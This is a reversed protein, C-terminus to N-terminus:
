SSNRKMVDAIEIEKGTLASEYIATAIALSPLAEEGNVTPERRTKVADVIDRFQILHRDEPMLRPDSTDAFTFGRGPDIQETGSRLNWFFTQDWEGNIIASGETGHVEIRSKFAPYIATSSQIVGLAGNEFTLTSAVLDEVEIKHRATRKKAFVSHVPGALWQLLDIVHISQTMLCGGGELQQTGRWYDRAYYEPTRYEKDIADAELIKGFSGAVLAQKLKQAASGFRMQFIVGLCVRNRKCADIIERGRVLTIELPKEVVVHKGAEAAAVAFDRHLGNPTVVNVVDVEQDALMDEFRTYTKPVSFKQGFAKAKAEDRGYTALLTADGLKAIQRAHTEGGMGLGALGFCIKGDRM